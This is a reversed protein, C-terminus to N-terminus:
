GRGFTAVGCLREKNFLINFWFPGHLAGVMLAVRKSEGRVMTNLGDNTSRPDCPMGFAGRGEGHRNM